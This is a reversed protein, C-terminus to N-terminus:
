SFGLRPQVEFLCTAKPHFNDPRHALQEPRQVCQVDTRTNVASASNLGCFRSLSFNTLFCKQSDCRQRLYM